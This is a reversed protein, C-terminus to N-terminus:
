SLYTIRLAMQQSDNSLGDWNGYDGSSDASDYLMVGYSSGNQLATGFSTPLTFWGAGSWGQSGPTNVSGQTTPAGSPRTAHPHLYFHMPIAASSGGSGMRHMYVEIKQITAGSLPGQFVNGYFACGKNNGYGYDGQQVEDGNIDWGGSPLRYSATEKALFTQVKQTQAPAQPTTTTQATGQTVVVSALAWLSTTSATSATPAATSGKADVVSLSSQQQTGNVASQNARQTWGSAPPTVPNATATSASTKAAFFDVVMDTSVIGSVVGQAPSTAAATTGGRVQSYGRVSAGTSGTNSYAVLAGNGALGFGANCSVTVTKGADGAVATKFWIVGSPGAQADDITCVATWGSPVAWATATTINAAVAVALLLDGAVVSSPITLTLSGGSSSDVNTSGNSNAARFVIGAPPVYTPAALNQPLPTGAPNAGLDTGEEVLLQGSANVFSLAQQDPANLSAPYQGAHSYKEDNLLFAAVLEQSVPSTNAPTGAAATPQVVVTGANGLDFRDATWPGLWGVYLGSSFVQCLLSSYNYLIVSDYLSPDTIPLTVVTQQGAVMSYVDSLGGTVSGM